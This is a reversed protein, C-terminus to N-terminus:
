QGALIMQSGSKPEGQGSRQGVAVAAGMGCFTRAAPGIPGGRVAGGRGGSSSANEDQPLRSWTRLRWRWAARGFEFATVSSAQWVQSVLGATGQVGGKDEGLVWLTPAVIM